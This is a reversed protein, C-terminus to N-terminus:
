FLLLILTLFNFILFFITFSFPYNCPAIAKAIADSRLEEWKCLAPFDISVDEKSLSHWCSKAPTNKFAWRVLLNWICLLLINDCLQKYKINPVSHYELKIFELLEKCPAIEIFNSNKSSLNCTLSLNQLSSNWFCHYIVLYKTFLPLNSFLKALSPIQGDKALYSCLHSM